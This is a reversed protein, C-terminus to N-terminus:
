GLKRLREILARLEGINRPAIAEILETSQEGDDVTWSLTKSPTQELASVCGRGTSLTYRIYGNRGDHREFSLAILVAPSIRGGGKISHPERSRSVVTNFQIGQTRAYERLMSILHTLQDAKSTSGGEDSKKTAFSLSLISEVFESHRSTSVNM